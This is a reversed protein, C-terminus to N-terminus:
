RCAAGGPMAPVLITLAIVLGGLGGAAGATDRVEPGPVAAPPVAAPSATAWPRAQWRSGGNGGGTPSRRHACGQELPHLEIGAIGLAMAVLEGTPLALANADGARQCEIRLQQDQVLRHRREVNGDPGSDDVEQLVKLLLQPQRIQEDGMVQRDNAVDGVVHSLAALAM